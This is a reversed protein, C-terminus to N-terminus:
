KLTIKEVQSGRLLNDVQSMGYLDNDITKKAKEEITSNDITLTLNNNNNITDNITNNITATTFM